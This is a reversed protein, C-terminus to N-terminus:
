TLHKLETEVRKLDVNRFCKEINSNIPLCIKDFDFYSNISPFIDLTWDRYLLVELEISQHRVLSYYNNVLSSFTGDIHAAVLFEGDFIIGKLNKGFLFDKSIKLHSDIYLFYSCDFSDYYDKNQHDKFELILRNKPIYVKLEKLVKNIIFDKENDFELFFNSLPNSKVIQQAQHIQIFNLSKPRFDLSFDYINNENLFKVTRKDYVGDFKLKKALMM